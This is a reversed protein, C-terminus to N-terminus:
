WTGPDDMWGEADSEWGDDWGSEWDAEWGDDMWSDEDWGDDAPVDASRGSVSERWLEIQRQVDGSSANYQFSPLGAPDYSLQMPLYILATDADDVDIWESVNHASARQGAAYSACDTIVYLSLQSVEVNASGNFSLDVRLSGGDMRIDACGIVYSNSACVDVRMSGQSRLSDLDVMTGMLWDGGLASDLDRLRVGRTCAGNHTMRPQLQMFPFAYVYDGAYLTVLYPVTRDGAYPLYIVGSDFSGDQWGYDKDFVLTQTDMQTLTLRVLGEVQKCVRVGQASASLERAVYDDRNVSSMDLRDVDITFCDGALAPVGMPLLLAAALLVLLRFLRQKM